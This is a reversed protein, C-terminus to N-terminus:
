IEIIERLIPKRVSLPVSAMPTPLRFTFFFLVVGQPPIGHSLKRPPVPCVRQKSVSASLGLRKSKGGNQLCPFILLLNM